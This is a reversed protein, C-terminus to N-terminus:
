RWPKFGKGVVENAESIVMFAEPHNDALFRKLDVAQRRTLLCMVMPRDEKSYGGHADIITSGRVLNASVFQVIPDPNKTVVYVLRRRDFSMITNDMILSSTYMSVLGLMANEIGVIQMSVGVICLNFYFTYAGVAIGFKKQLYLVVIDLGGMSAGARLVIGGGFGKIAGGILAVLLMNDTPVGPVFEMVRLLFTLLFVSFITWLVVRVSLERWAWALLVVNVVGTTLPVSLGLVYKLLVAIGMVGADPFRFPVTFAMVGLAYLFCGLVVAFFTSAEARAVIPLMKLVKKVGRKNWEIPHNHM